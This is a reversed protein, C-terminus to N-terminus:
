CTEENGVVKKLASILEDSSFPKTLSYSSGFRKAMDLYEEKGNGGGGSMAIIKVLPYKKRVEKILELGDKDPMFIDTVLIDVASEGIMRPVEFSNTTTLVKYGTKFIKLIRQMSDLLLQEDDVLLICKRMDFGM